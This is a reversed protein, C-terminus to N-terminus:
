RSPRCPSCSRGPRRHCAPCPWRSAASGSRSPSPAGSSVRALSLRVQAEAEPELLGALANDAMARAELDHGNRWLLTITEAVLASRDAHDAPALELARSSLAVATAPSTPAFDTAARRLLSVAEHDGPQAVEALDAAVEMVAAGRRLRVDVAQRRVLNGFAAPM